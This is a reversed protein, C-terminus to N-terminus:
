LDMAQIPNVRNVNRLIVNLRRTTTQWNEEKFGVRGVVRRLMRRKLSDMKLPDTEAKPATTRVHTSTPAYTQEVSHVCAQSMKEVLNENTHRLEVNGRTRLNGHLIRGLYGRADDDDHLNQLNATTMTAGGRSSGWWARLLARLFLFLFLVVAQRLDLDM